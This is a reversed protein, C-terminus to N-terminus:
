ICKWIGTIEETSLNVSCLFPIVCVFLRQIFYQKLTVGTAFSQFKISIELFKNNNVSILRDFPTAQRAGAQYSHFGAAVHDKMFVRSM